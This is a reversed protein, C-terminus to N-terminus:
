VPVSIMRPLSDELVIKAPSQSSHHDFLAATGGRLSYEDTVWGHEGEVASLILDVESIALFAEVLEADWQTGANGALISCARERPMGQRYPRHSTMADYADAVALIRGMLPIADGVLGHPYGSGDVSEHHHLIGPLLDALQPMTQIIRAGIEPHRKIIAFEEETLKGPKGLIADPVGIKGVDHLLGSLYIRDSEHEPLGIAQALLRGYRAVRESHGRTYPDRADVANGMARIVGITLAERDELLDLNHGHTALMSAAAEVLGAEITGFEQESVTETSGGAVSAPIRKLAITWGYVVDNRVIAVACIARVHLRQLLQPVQDGNYIIPRGHAAGPGDQLWTQWTEDDVLQLGETLVEWDHRPTGWEIASGSGVNRTVLTVVSDARILERLSPLLQGAIDSLSQRMSCLAMYGTLSRLWAQEELGYTLTELYAETDKSQVSLTAEQLLLTRAASVLRDVLEPDRGSLVGVALSDSTRSGPLAVWIRTTGDDQLQKSWGLQRARATAQQVADCETGDPHWPQMPTGLVASLTALGPPLEMSSHAKWPTEVVASM